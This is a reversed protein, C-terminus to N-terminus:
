LIQSLEYMTLRKRKIYREFFDIMPAQVVRICELGVNDLFEISVTGLDNFGDVEAPFLLINYVIDIQRQQLYEKYALHYLYQKTLDSIGPHNKLEQGFVLNYYKADVLIFVRQNELNAEIVIDPIITDTSHNYNDISQWSPKAIYQRLSTYQNGLVYGCVKEWVSHFSRTGYMDILSDEAKFSSGTVYAYLAKLTALKSDIFQQNIEVYICQAAFQSNMIDLEQKDTEIAPYGFVQNLGTKVIFDYCSKVVSQHLQYLFNSEDQVTDCSYTELYVPTRNSVIANTSEITKTWDIENDGSAVFTTKESTYWGNEYYDNLLFLMLAMKSGIDGSSEYSLTEMEDSNMSERRSYEQLLLLMKGINQQDYIDNLIKPMCVIVHDRCHIIGVYNFIFTNNKIDLFRNRRLEACFEDFEKIPMELDSILREYSYARQEQVITFAM